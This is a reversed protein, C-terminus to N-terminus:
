RSRSPTRTMPPLVSSHEVSADFSEFPHHVLIDGAQIAAFINAVGEPLAAPQLPTWPTDRLAPIPLGSIEFLTTFDVEEAMDYIDSTSLAFRERLMEKIVPDASPGFELRVVPEYRRQRVQEEVLERIQAAPDDDIEVEADRTIRVVTMADITMGGYLKDVNGRIVEYLPVFLQQGTELGATLAVWQKLVSPVKVRAYISTGQDPDQLSSSRLQYIRCSLFPTSPILLWRPSRPRFITTSTPAPKRTSIQHSNTGAAFFFVM